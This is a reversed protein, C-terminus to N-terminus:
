PRPHPPESERDLVDRVVGFAMGSPYGKRGLLGVLRRIAVDRDVGSMSRLKKEVLETAAARESDRDVGETLVVDVCARDVGRDLLERRLVRESLGKTRHRSEVWARAFAEDNIYGLETVRDLAREAAWEPVDRKALVEALQQRTKPSHSLQRLVIQKAVEVPDADPDRDTLLGPPAERAPRAV